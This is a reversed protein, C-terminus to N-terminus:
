ARGASCRMITPCVTEAQSRPTGGPSSGIFDGSPLDLSQPVQDELRILDSLANLCREGAKEEIVFWRLFSPRDPLHRWWRRRRLPHDAISSMWVFSGRFPSLSDACALFARDCMWGSSNLQNRSTPRCTANVARGTSGTPSRFHTWSSLTQDTPPFRLRLLFPAGALPRLGNFAADATAAAIEWAANGLTPPLRGDNRAELWVRGFVWPDGEGYPSLTAIFPRVQRLYKNQAKAAVKADTVNTAFSGHAEALVVGHGSVSGGAYLFDAHPNLTPALCAANDRWVYGPGNMYLDTIGAGMRAAFHTRETDALSAIYPTLAFVPGAAILIEAENLVSYKLRSLLEPPANLLTATRAM